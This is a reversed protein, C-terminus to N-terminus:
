AQELGLGLYRAAPVNRSLNPSLAHRARELADWASVFPLSPITVGEGADLGALAADVLDDVEMVTEPPLDEINRGSREWIETRTIGPLVAQVRVGYPALDAALGQSFNLVFAKTAAYTTEFSEPILATVSGINVITGKRRSAFADAAAAALRAPALANLRIISEVLDPDAGPFSQGGSMGANNVLFSIAPDSRLAAEVRALKVSDNLDAPIIEASVGYRSSLKRAVADLRIADRAVLILDYGREALRDAYTAGIGTSAGTILAKDSM